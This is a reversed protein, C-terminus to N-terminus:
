VSGPSPPWGLRMIFAEDLFFTSYQGLCSLLIIKFPVVNEKRGENELDSQGLKLVACENRSTELLWNIKTLNKVQVTHNNLKSSGQHKLRPLVVISLIM